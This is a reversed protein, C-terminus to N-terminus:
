EALVRMISTTGTPVQLKQRKEVGLSKSLSLERKRMNQIREQLEYTNRGTRRPLKTGTM